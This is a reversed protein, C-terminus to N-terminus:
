FQDALAAKVAYGAPQDLGADTLRFRHCLAPNDASFGGELTGDGRRNPDIYVEMLGTAHLMPWTKYADHSLGYIRLRDIGTIHVWGDDSGLRTLDRLMLWLAIESKTLAYLWGNLFFGVPIDISQEPHKPVTYPAPLGTPRAGGEDLLRFGEFKGRANSAHPLEVLSKHALTKLTQKVQRLRNDRLSAARVAKEDHGSHPVVLDIWQDADAGGELPLGLDVVNGKQVGHIQAVFLAALMFQQAVGNPSILDIVPPNPAKPRRRDSMEGSAPLRRRVFAPRVAIGGRRLGGHAHVQQLAQSAKAIDVALLDLKEVRQVTRDRRTRQDSKALNVAVAQVSQSGEQNEM